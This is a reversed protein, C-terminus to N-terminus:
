ASRTHGCGTGRTVTRGSNFFQSEGTRAFRSKATRGFCKFDVIEARWVKAANWLCWRLQRRMEADPHFATRWLVRPRIHLALETLKVALFLQWPKLRSTKLVQHRFDWRSMDPEVVDLHATEAGFRTWDHPTAYMVNVLDPDYRVMGRFARWRSIWGEDGLGAVHTAIAIIGNKRLLRIAESDVTASSDKGVREIITADTTEIGVLIACFGAKRYLPLLEADRCIDSARMAATLAVPVARASMEELFRRWQRVNTTPNEDAFTIFNVGHRRHLMAIEDALRVPDRHRWRVWFERQGCYSCRHPCGRSFQIIASRGLGWCRHRDWDDILEWAVRCADLDRIVPASPTEFIRGHEDRSSIGDVGTLEQRAALAEALRVVVAEGEGRVIIDVQPATELIAQAHFSPYVGGYVTVLHSAAKKIASLMRLVTLHAPSSGSHGTMVVDPAFAHVRRVIETESLMAQEANLLAVDHGADILPGGISLMGLPVQPGMGHITLARYPPNILLIRM